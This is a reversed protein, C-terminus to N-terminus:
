PSQDVMVVARLTMARTEEPPVIEEAGISSSCLILDELWLLPCFDYVHFNQVQVQATWLRLSLSLILDFDLAVHITFSKLKKPWM